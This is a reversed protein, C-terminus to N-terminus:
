ILSSVLIQFYFDKRCLSRLEVMLPKLLTRNVLNQYAKVGEPNVPTLIKIEKVFLSAAWEPEDKTRHITTALRLNAKALLNIFLLNRKIM